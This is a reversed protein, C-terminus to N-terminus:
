NLITGPPLQPIQQDKKGFTEPFLIQLGGLVEQASIKGDDLSEALIGLGTLVKDKGKFDLDNLSPALVTYLDSAKLKGTDISEAIAELGKQNYLADPLYDQLVPDLAGLIDQASVKGTDIAEAGIQIGDKIAQNVNPNSSVSPILDLIGGAINQATVKGTDVFEGVANGM